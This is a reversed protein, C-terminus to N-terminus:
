IVEKGKQADIYLEPFQSNLDSNVEFGLGYESHSRTSLIHGM